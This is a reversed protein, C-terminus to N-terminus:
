SPPPTPIYGRIWRYCLEKQSLSPYVADATDLFTLIDQKFADRELLPTDILKKFLKWIGETLPDLLKHESFFRVTNRIYHKLIIENGLEYHSLFEIIKINLYLSYFEVHTNLWDHIEETAAIVEDYQQYNFLTLCVFHLLFVRDIFILRDNYREIGARVEPLFEYAHKHRGSNLLYSLKSMIYIIFKHYRSREDSVDLDELKQLFPPVQEYMEATLLGSLTNRLMTMYELQHEKIRWDHIEWMEAIEIQITASEVVKHEIECMVMQAQRTKIQATFTRNVLKKIQNVQTKLRLLEQKNKTTLRSLHIVRLLTDVTDSEDQLQTIVISEEKKIESLTNLNTDKHWNSRTLTRKYKLLQLLIDLYERERAIELGKEIMKQCSHILGKDHLLRIDQLQAHLQGQTNKEAHYVRLSKMIKERLYNKEDPLNKGIAKGKLTKKLQKEDYPLNDPLKDIADFLKLYNDAKSEKQTWLKFFRKEAPSLRKILSFLEDNVSM